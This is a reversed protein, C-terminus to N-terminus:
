IQQKEQKCCHSKQATGKKHHGFQEAIDIKRGIGLRPFIGQATQAFSHLL